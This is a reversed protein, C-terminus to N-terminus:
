EGAVASVLPSHKPPWRVVPPRRLWPSRVYIQEEGDISTYGLDYDAEDVVTASIM